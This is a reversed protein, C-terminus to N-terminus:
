MLAKIMKMCNRMNMYECEYVYKYYEGNFRHKESYVHVNKKHRVLKKYNGKM